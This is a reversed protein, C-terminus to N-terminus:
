SDRDSDEAGLTDSQAVKAAEAARIVVDWEDDSFRISRQSRQVAM